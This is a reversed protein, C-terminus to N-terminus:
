KAMKDGAIVNPPKSPALVFLAIPTESVNIPEAMAPIIPASRRPLDLKEIDSQFSSLANSPRPYFSIIM